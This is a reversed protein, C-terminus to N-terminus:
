SLGSAAHTGRFGATGRRNTWVLLKRRQENRVQVREHRPGVGKPDDFNADLLGLNWLSKITNPPFFFPHKSRIEDDDISWGVSSRVLKHKAAIQLVRIQSPSLRLKPPHQKMTEAASFKIKTM